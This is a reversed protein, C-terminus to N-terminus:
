GRPPTRLRPVIFGDPLVTDTAFVISAQQAVIQLIETPALVAMFVSCTSASHKIEDCCAADGHGDMGAVIMHPESMVTHANASVAFMAGFLVFCGLIASRLLAM